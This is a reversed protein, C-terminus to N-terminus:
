MNLEFGHHQEYEEEDVANYFVTQPHIGLLRMKKIEEPSHQVYERHSQTEGGEFLSLVSQLCDALNGPTEDKLQPTYSQYGEAILSDCGGLEFYKELNDKLLREDFLKNDRCVHNDPTTFTISQRSNEWRMRYGQQEMRTLFEEKTRSCRMARLADRRLTKKWEPWGGPRAKPETLQCGHEMCQVNVFSKVQELGAATQHFKKGTQYNVANMVLHNHIHGCNTHTAVVCQFGKFYDALQMGMKHATDADIPDDPSFSQIIHYYQRGDLKGFQRRVTEFEVEANEPVCDKGSVLRGETKERNCIYELVNKVSSKASLFKVVAM